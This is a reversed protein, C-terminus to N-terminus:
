GFLSVKQCCCDRVRLGTCHGVVWGCVVTPPRRDPGTWKLLCGRACGGFRGIWKSFAVRSGLKGMERGWEMAWGGGRQGNSGKRRGGLALEEGCGCGSLSLARLLCLAAALVVSASSHHRRPRRGLVDDRELAGGGDDALEETRARRWGIGGKGDEGRWHRIPHNPPLNRPWCTRSPGAFLPTTEIGSAPKNSISRTLALNQCHPNIRPTQHPQLMRYLRPTYGSSLKPLTFFYPRGMSSVCSLATLVKRVM